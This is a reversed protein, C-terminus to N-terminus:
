RPICPCCFDRPDPTPCNPCPDPTPSPPPGPTCRDPRGCNIRNCEDNDADSETAKYPPGEFFGSAQCVLNLKGQEADPDLFGFLPNPVRGSVRVNFLAEKATNESHDGSEPSKPM